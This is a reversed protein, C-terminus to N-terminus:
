HQTDWSAHQLGHYWLKETGSSIVYGIIVHATIVHASIVHETIVHASIVHASVMHPITIRAYSTMFLYL